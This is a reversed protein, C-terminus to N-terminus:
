AADRAEQDEPPWIDPRLDTRSVAGDTAQEIRRALEHSARKNRWEAAVQYLWQPNAGTDAALQVLRDKDAIYDTLSKIM